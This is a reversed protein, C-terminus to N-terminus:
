KESPFHGDFIELRFTMFCPEKTFSLMLEHPEKPMPVRHTDVLRLTRTWFIKSGLDLPFFDISYDHRM